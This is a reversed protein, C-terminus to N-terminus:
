LNMWEVVRISMWDKLQLCVGDKELKQSGPVLGELLQSFQDSNPLRWTRQHPKYPHTKLLERPITPASVCEPM